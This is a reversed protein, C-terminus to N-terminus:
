LTVFQRPRFLPFFSLIFFFLSKTHRPGFSSYKPVPHRWDIGWCSTHLHSTEHTSKGPLGTMYCVVYWGGGWGELFLFFFECRYRFTVTIAFSREGTSKYKRDENVIFLSDLTKKKSLFQRLIRLFRISIRFIKRGYIKKKENWDSRDFASSKKWLIFVNSNKLIINISLNEKFRLYFLIFNLRIELSTFVVNLM